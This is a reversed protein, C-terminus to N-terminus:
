GGESRIAANLDSLMTNKTTIQAINQQQAALIPIISEMEMRLLFLERLQLQQLVLSERQLDAPTFSPSTIKQYWDGQSRSNIMEAEYALPSLGGLSKQPIREQYLRNLANVSASLQAAYLALQSHFGQLLYPSIKPQFGTTQPALSSGASLYIYRKANEQQLKTYTMYNLLNGANLTNAYAAVGQKKDPFKANSIRDGGSPNWLIGKVFELTSNTAESAVFQPTVTSISMNPVVVQNLYSIYADNPYAFLTLLLSSFKQSQKGLTANVNNNLIQTNLSTARLENLSPNIAPTGVDQGDLNSSSQTNLAYATSFVLLFGLINSFIHKKKLM